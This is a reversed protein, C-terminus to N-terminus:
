GSRSSTWHSAEKMRGQACRVGPGSLLTGRLVGNRPSCADEAARRDSRYSDGSARIFAARCSRRATEPISCMTATHSVLEYDFVDRDTLVLAADAAAIEQETLDVRCVGAAAPTESMGGQGKTRIGGSLDM